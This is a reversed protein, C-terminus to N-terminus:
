KIVQYVQNKSHFGDKIVTEDINNKTVMIPDLFFSKVEIKGNYTKSNSQPTEGKALEVAIEAAKQALAPIPKYVTLTQTGQIVRQVASLEADQGSVPIRGDLNYEKLARIAGFATGDNAAVVADLKGGTALYKKITNYSEEPKWDTMFEDIVLKVSGKKILPNLVEMSGQKLLSANNDTPAGGIYAFNGTNKVSTVGQAEMNGVKVNDFSIYFDVDSNKILRDYAVIKINAKHALEVVGAIKESDYPAIVIVDVSQSILNEVQTNQLEANSNASVVQTYVGLKKAAEVFLDRDKQWREERLDGLAFGIRISNNPNVQTDVPPKILIFKIIVGIIIIGIILSTIVFTNTKSM